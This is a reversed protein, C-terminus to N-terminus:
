LCGGGIELLGLLGLTPKRLPGTARPGILDPTRGASPVTHRDRQTRSILCSTIPKKAPTVAIQDSHEAPIPFHAV